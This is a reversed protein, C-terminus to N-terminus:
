APTVVARAGEARPIQRTRSHMVDAVRDVVVGTIPVLAADRDDGIKTPRAAAVVPYVPTGQLEPLFSGQIAESIGNLCTAWASAMGAALAASIYPTAGENVAYVLPPYIRGSHGLGRQLATRETLVFTTYWHPANNQGGSVVPVFDVRATNVDRQRGNAQIWVLKAWTLTAVGAIKADASSFWSALPVRADELASQIEDAGVVAGPESHEDPDGGAKFCVTNSWAEMVPIGINGGFSLKLHPIYQPM